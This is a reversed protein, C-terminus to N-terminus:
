DNIEIDKKIRNRQATDNLKTMEMDFESKVNPIFRNPFHKPLIM